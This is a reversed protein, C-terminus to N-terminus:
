QAEFIMAGEGDAILGVSRRGKPGKKLKNECNVGIETRHTWEGAVTPQRNGVLKRDQFWWCIQPFNVFFWL